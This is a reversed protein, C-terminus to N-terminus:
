APALGDLCAPCNTIVLEGSRAASAGGGVTYTTEVAAMAFGGFLARVEPTDNLSLVFRGKLGALLTGLVEFNRKGGIYGAVPVVPRVPRFVSDM